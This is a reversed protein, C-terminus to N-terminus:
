LPQHLRAPRLPLLGSGMRARLGRAAEAQGAPLGALSGAGSRLDAHDAADRPSPVRLLVADTGGVAALLPRRAPLPPGAAGPEHDVRIPPGPHHELVGPRLARPRVRLLPLVRPPAGRPGFLRHLLGSRAWPRYSGRASASGGKCGFELQACGISLSMIVATISSRGEAIARAAAPSASAKARRISGSSSGAYRSAATISDSRVAASSATCSLEILAQRLSRWNRPSAPESRGHNREITALSHRM